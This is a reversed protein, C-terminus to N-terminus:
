QKWGIESAKVPAPFPEVAGCDGCQAAYAETERVKVMNGNIEKEVYEPPDILRFQAWLNAAGCKKCKRPETM